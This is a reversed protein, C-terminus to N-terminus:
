AVLDFHRRFLLLFLSLWWSIDALGLCPNQIRIPTKVKLCMPVSKMLLALMSALSSYIDQTTGELPHRRKTNTKNKNQNLHTDQKENM